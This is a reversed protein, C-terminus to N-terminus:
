GYIGRNVADGELSTELAQLSSMVGPPVPYITRAIRERLARIQERTGQAIENKDIDPTIVANTLNTPLLMMQMSLDAAAKEIRPAEYSGRGRAYTVLDALAREAQQWHPQVARQIYSQVLPGVLEAAQAREDVQDAPVVGATPLQM